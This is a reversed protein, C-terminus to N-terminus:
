RTTSRRRTTMSGSRASARSRPELAEYGGTRFRAVLEAVWSKSIEHARAVERISRREVVVRMSWTALWM